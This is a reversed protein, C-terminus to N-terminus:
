QLQGQPCLMYEGVGRKMRTRRAKVHAEPSVSPTVEAKMSFVTSKGPWPQDVQVNWETPHLFKYLYGPSYNLVWLFKERDECHLRSGLGRSLLVIVEQRSPEPCLLM